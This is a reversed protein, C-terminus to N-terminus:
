PLGLVGALAILECSIVLTCPFHSLSSGCSLHYPVTPPRPFHQLQLPGEAEFSPLAAHQYAYSHLNKESLVSLGRM